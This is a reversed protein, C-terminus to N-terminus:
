DCVNLRCTLETQHGVTPLFDFYSTSGFLHLLLDLTKFCQIRLKKNKAPLELQLMWLLFSIKKCKMHPKTLCASYLM